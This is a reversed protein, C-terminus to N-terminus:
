SGVLWRRRSERIREFDDGDVAGLKGGLAGLLGIAVFIWAEAVADRERAIGGAQQARSIVGAVYGRVENMHGALYDRIEPDDGAETLAQVWLNSIVVQEQRRDLFARGMAALWDSSDPEREIVDDWSARVREWAAHLCALYLDRKSSFHRYLIPESVGAERAIDSTTVGRYSGESFVRCAVELVAARREAAPLRQRVASV